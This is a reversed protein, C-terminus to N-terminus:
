EDGSRQDPGGAQTGGLLAAAGRNRDPSSGPSGPGASSDAGLASVSRDQQPDHRRHPVPGARHVPVAVGGRHAGALRRQRVICRAVPAAHETGGCEPDLRAGGSWAHRCAGLGVVALSPRYGGHGVAASPLQRPQGAESVYTAIESPSIAETWGAGGSGELSEFSASACVPEAYRVETSVATAIDDDVPCIPAMLLANVLSSKGQKFEGVVHVMVTSDSLLRRASSLREALDEREYARTGQIAMDLTELAHRAAASPAQQGSM